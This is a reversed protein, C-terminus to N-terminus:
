SDRAEIIVMAVAYSKEHSITLHIFANMKETKFYPIDLMIYPSGYDDNCIEIEKFSLNKNTSSFYRLIYSLRNSINKNLPEKNLAQKKVGSFAKIAAEKAAFRGALHAFPNKRLYCYSIEKETYIKNIFRSGWKQVAEKIRNIEVIDTGIGIIM